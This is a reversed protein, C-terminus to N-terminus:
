QIEVKGTGIVKARLTEGDSKKVTIMDYLGGDEEATVSLEIIMSASKLVATVPTDRKVIPIPEVDRESLLRGSVLRIKARWQMDSTLPALPPVTFNTFSSQTLRTNFPTLADRRDITMKATVTPITAVLEYDFFYRKQDESKIYFTGKARQHAKKPIIIEYSEPLGTMYARPNVHLAQIIMDPYVEKFHARLAEDLPTMDFTFQREFSVISENSEITIGEREFRECLESAKIRYRTKKEPIELVIFHKQLSPFLDDSWIVPTEYRYHEQLTLAACLMQYSVLLLPLILRM